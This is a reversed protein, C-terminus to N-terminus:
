AFQFVVIIVVLVVGAQSDEMNYIINYIYNYNRGVRALARTPRMRHGRASPAAWRRM